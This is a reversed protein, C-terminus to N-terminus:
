RCYFLYVPTSYLLTLYNWMVSSSRTVLPNLIKQFMSDSGMRHRLVECTEWKPIQSICWVKGSETNLRRLFDTIIIHQTQNGDCMQLFSSFVKNAVLSSKQRKHKTKLEHNIM